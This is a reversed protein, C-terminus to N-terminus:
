RDTGHLARVTLLCIAAPADRCGYMMFYFPKCASWQAPALPLPLATRWSRARPCLGVIPWTVKGCTGTAPVRRRASCGSSRLRLRVLRLMGVVLTARVRATMVTHAQSQATARVRPHPQRGHPGETQGLRIEGLPQLTATDAAPQPCKPDQWPGRIQEVVLELYDKDMQQQRQQPSLHSTRVKQDAHARALAEITAVTGREHDPLAEYMCLARAGIPPQGINDFNSLLERRQAADSMMKAFDKRLTSASHERQARAYLDAQERLEQGHTEKALWCLVEFPSMADHYALPNHPDTCHACNCRLRGLFTDVFDKLVAGERRRREQAAHLVMMEFLAM